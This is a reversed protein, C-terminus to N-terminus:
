RRSTISELTEVEHKFTAGDLHAVGDFTSADGVGVLRFITWM